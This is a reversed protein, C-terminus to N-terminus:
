GVPSYIRHPKSDFLLKSRIFQLQRFFSCFKRIVASHYLVKGGLNLLRFLQKSLHFTGNIAGTGQTPIGNILLKLLCQKGLFGLKCGSLCFNLSPSQSYSSIFLFKQFEIFLCKLGGDQFSFLLGKFLGVLHVYLICLLCAKVLSFLIYPKCIKNNNLM